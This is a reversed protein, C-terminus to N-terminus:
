IISATSNSARHYKTTLCCSRRVASSYRLYLRKSAPFQKEVHQSRTGPYAQWDTRFKRKSNQIAKNTLTSLCWLHAELQQPICSVAAHSPFPHFKHNFILIRKFRTHRPIYGPHKGIRSVDMCLSAPRDWRRLRLLRDSSRCVLCAVDWM